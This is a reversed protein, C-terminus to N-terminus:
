VSFYRNIITLVEEPWFKSVPVRGHQTHGPAMIAAYVFVVGDSTVALLREKGVYWEFSIEGDPSPALEPPKITDPLLNILTYALGIAFKSIPSAGYGDWSPESCEAAIQELDNYLVLKWDMLLGHTLPM